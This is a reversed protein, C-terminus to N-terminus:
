HGAAKLPEIVEKVFERPLLHVPRGREFKLPLHTWRGDCWWYLEPSISGPGEEFLDRVVKALVDHTRVLPGLM